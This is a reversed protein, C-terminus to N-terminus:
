RILTLGRVPAPHLGHSSGHDAIADPRGQEQASPAAHIASPSNDIRPHLMGRLVEEGVRHELGQTAPRVASERGHLHGDLCGDAGHVLRSHTDTEDTGPPSRLSRQDAVVLHRREHALERIPQHPDRGHVQVARHLRHPFKAPAHPVEAESSEPDDRPQPVQRGVVAPVIRQVGLAHFEPNREAELDAVGAGETRRLGPTGNGVQVM